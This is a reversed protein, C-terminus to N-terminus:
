EVAISVAIFPEHNGIVVQNKLQNIMPSRTRTRWSHKRSASPVRTLFPLKLFLNSTGWDNYSHIYCTTMVRGFQHGFLNHHSHLVVPYLLAPLGRKTGWVLTM